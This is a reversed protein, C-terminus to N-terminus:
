ETKNGSYAYPTEKQYVVTNVNRLTQREGPTTRETFVNRTYVSLRIQKFQGVQHGVYSVRCCPMLETETKVRNM